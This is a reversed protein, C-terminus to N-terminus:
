ECTCLNRYSPM